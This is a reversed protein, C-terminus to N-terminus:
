QINLVRQTRNEILILKTLSLDFKSHIMQEELCLFNLHIYDIIFYTLKM